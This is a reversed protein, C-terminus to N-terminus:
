HKIWYGYIGRTGQRSCDYTDYLVGEKVCTLHKSLRLILIGEPLEDAKLHISIGKGIGSCSVWSFGLHNEIYYKIVNKNVGDRPSAKERIKLNKKTAKSGWNKSLSFLEDYVIKYDLGTAHTIARVVCDGVKEGKFYKSRGGDSLIIELEKNKIEM